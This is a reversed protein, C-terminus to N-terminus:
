EGRERSVTFLSIIEVKGEHGVQFGVGSRYSIWKRVYEGTSLTCGGGSRDPKGYVHKIKYLSDGPSIGRSTKVLAGQHGDCGERYFFLSLVINTKTSVICDFGRHLYLWYVRGGASGLRKANPWGFTLLIRRSTQRLHLEDLGYGELLIDRV